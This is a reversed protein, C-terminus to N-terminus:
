RFLREGGKSGYPSVAPEFRRFRHRKVADFDYQFLLGVQNAGDGGKRAANFGYGYVLSVFWAGRPSVYTVGAGLGAHWSDDQGHGDIYDVPAGAGYFTLRWNKEPTFPFSYEANLLAFKEASIEQFYYGPINLPFESVWPLLGGLRYSGFRDPNVTAGLTLGVDFYQQSQEFTYKLFARGWFLHSAQEIERDDNFGYRQREDRIHAEYWLSMEFALPTTMTPERGGMRIGTRLDISTMDEPVEFDDSTTSDRGFISHHVSLRSVWWAPVRWDPNLRHYLSSSVEAAHGTFSEDRLYRGNRIESYTDAFGGGAFGLGLDTQPTIVGKIGLEGDFYIPAVALRLTWNTRMFEPKNYYFFGYAAIPARGELPQNYGLQLLRRNEPDLQAFAGIQVAVACIALWV